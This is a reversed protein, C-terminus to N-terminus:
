DDGRRNPAPVRVHDKSPEHEVDITDAKNALLRVRGPGCTRADTLGGGYGYSVAWLGADSITVYISRGSVDFRVATDDRADLTRRAQRRNTAFALADEAADLDLTM